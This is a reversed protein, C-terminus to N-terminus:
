GLEVEVGDIDEETINYKEMLEQESVLPAEDAEPLRKLTEIVLDRDIIEEVLEEYYQPSMIVGAVENNKIIVKVGSKTVEDLIKSTEGKHFRSIPITTDTINKVMNTNVAM